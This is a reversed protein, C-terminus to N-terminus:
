FGKAFSETMDSIGGMEGHLMESITVEESRSGQEKREHGNCPGPDIKRDADDDLIRGRGRAAFDDYRPRRGSM